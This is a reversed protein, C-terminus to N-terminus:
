PGPLLVSGPKPYVTLDSRAIGRKGAADVKAALDEEGIRPRLSAVIGTLTPILIALLSSLLGAAPAMFEGPRFGPLTNAALQFALVVAIMNCLAAGMYFLVNKVRLSM